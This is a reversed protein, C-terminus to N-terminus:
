CVIHFSLFHVWEAEISVRYIIMVCVAYIFGGLLRNSHTVAAHYETVGTRRVHRATHKGNILQTHERSLNWDRQETARRHLKWDKHTDAAYGSPIRALNLILM